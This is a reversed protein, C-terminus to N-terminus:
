LVVVFARQNTLGGKSILGTKSPSMGVIFM